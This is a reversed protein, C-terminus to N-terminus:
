RRSRARRRNKTYWIMGPMPNLDDGCNDISQGTCDSHASRRDYFYGTVFKRDQWYCCCEAPNEHDCPQEQKWAVATGSPRQEHDFLTSDKNIQALLQGAYAPGDVFFQAAKDDQEKFMLVVVHGQFNIQKLAFAFSGKQIYSDGKGKLLKLWALQNARPKFVQRPRGDTIVRPDRFMDSVTVTEPPERCPGVPLGAGGTVCKSLCKNKAKLQEFGELTSVTDPAPMQQCPDLCAQCEASGPGPGSVDKALSISTRAAHMSSVLVLTVIAKLAISDM